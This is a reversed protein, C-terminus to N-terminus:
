AIQLGTLSSAYGSRGSMISLSSLTNPNRGAGTYGNISPAAATQSPAPIYARSLADAQRRQEALAANAAEIQQQQLATQKAYAEQQKIMLANLASAQSEAASTTNPTTAGPAASPTSTTVPKNNYDNAISQSASGQSQINGIINKFSGDNPNPLQGAGGGSADAGAGSADAGGGGGALRAMVQQYDNISSYSSLGM